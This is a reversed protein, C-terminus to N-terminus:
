LYKAFFSHVLNFAKEVDREVEPISLDGRVTWGHEMDPFEIIQVGDGLIKKGLGGPKVSEGESASPMFMQFSKINKLIEEENEELLPIINPHSPHM